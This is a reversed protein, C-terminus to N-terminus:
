LCVSTVDTPTTARRVAGLPIVFLSLHYRKSQNSKSCGGFTDCISQPSIQPQPQGQFLVWLYRLCVSTIDTTSTAKPVAGLPIAFLSLHCRNYLNSKSCGGITDCICQPSIKQLPQEQFLGWLYRLYVSTVDTTSTARPVAGLPIAFLSLHYRKSHNSKSCGWFTDCVSQPSIQQLPQEQLLGWRQRLCVLNIETTSTARPVVGLPISFLSLNFRNYHNSKSCGGFTDCISQPSRQKLPQEQFLGWLYRLCVSTIDKPTTARPVAGLPIAFLSLHYRKSHNSKSCGGFTDCISQPSM